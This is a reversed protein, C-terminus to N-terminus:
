ASTIYSINVYIYNTGQVLSTMDEYIGFDAYYRLRFDLVIDTSTVDAKVQSEIMGVVESHEITASVIGIVPGSLSGSDITIASGDASLTYAGTTAGKAINDVLTLADGNWKSELTCKLTSATSGDQITLRSTRLVRGSTSDGLLAGPKYHHIIQYNSGDSYLFIVEGSLTMVFSTAGDITQSGSPDLTVDNTADTVKIMVIRGALSVASLLDIEVAGAAATVEIVMDTSTMAYPSDDSDISVRNWKSPFINTSVTDSWGTTFNQFVNKFYELTEQINPIDESINNTISPVNPNYKATM